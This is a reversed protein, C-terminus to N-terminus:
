DTVRPFLLARLAGLTTNGTANERAAAAEWAALAKPDAFIAARTTKVLDPDLTGVARAPNGAAITDAPVDHTVVAGAGIIANEGISIGKCLIARLGVWVNGALRVPANTEPERTRDYRDHWDSDSIMVQSALMSGEGIEISLAANIMVGPMILAYDGITIRPPPRDGRAWTSLRVPLHREAHIQVHRGASIGPGMVQVHWPRRVRAGEGFAEFQARLFHRTWWGEFAFETSRLWYPRHDRRM